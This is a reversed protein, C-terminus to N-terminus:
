RESQGPRAITVRLTPKYKLSARYEEGLDRLDWGPIEVLIIWEGLTHKTQRKQGKIGKEKRQSKEASGQRMSSAILRVPMTLSSQCIPRQEFSNILTDGSMETRRPEHGPGFVPWM